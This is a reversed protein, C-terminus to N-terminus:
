GNDHHSSLYGLGTDLVPRRFNKAPAVAPSQGLRLATSQGLCNAREVKLSLGRRAKRKPCDGFSVQAGEGM